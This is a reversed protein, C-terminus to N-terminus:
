KLEEDFPELVKRIRTADGVLQEVLEDTNMSTFYFRELARTVCAVNTDLHKQKREVMEALKAEDEKTWTM